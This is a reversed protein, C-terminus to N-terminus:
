ISMGTWAASRSSAAPASGTVREALHWVMGTFRNWVLQAVIGCAVAMTVELLWWAPLNLKPMHTIVWINVIYIFLTSSAIVQLPRHLLRPIPIREVWVMLGLAVFFLADVGGTPYVTPPPGLWETLPPIKSYAAVALVALLGTVAWKRVPSNAQTILLGLALMWFWKFPAVSDTGVQGDWWGGLVQTAAMVLGIM